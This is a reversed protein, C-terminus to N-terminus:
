DAPTSRVMGRYSQCDEPHWHSRGLGVREALSQDVRNLALALSSYRRLGIVTHVSNPVRYYNKRIVVLLTRAFRM